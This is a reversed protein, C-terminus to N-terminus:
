KPNFEVLCTCKLYTFHINGGTGECVLMFFYRRRRRERFLQVREFLGHAHMLSVRYPSSDFLHM